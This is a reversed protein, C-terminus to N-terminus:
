ALRVAMFPRPIVDLFRLEQRARELEGADGDPHCGHPRCFRWEAARGAEVADNGDPAVQGEGGHEGRFLHIFDNAVDGALGAVGGRELDDVRTESSACIGDVIALHNGGVLLHADGPPDFLDQGFAPPAPGGPGQLRHARPNPPSWRPIRLSLLFTSYGSQAISGTGCTARCRGSRYSPM